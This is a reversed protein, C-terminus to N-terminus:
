LLDCGVGFDVFRLHHSENVVGASIKDADNELMLRSFALVTGRYAGCEKTKLSLYQSDSPYWRCKSYMSKSLVNQYLLGLDSNSNGDDGSSFQKRSLKFNADVLSKSNAAEGFFFLLLAPVVFFRVIM